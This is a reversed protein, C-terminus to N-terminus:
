RPKCFFNEEKKWERKYLVDTSGKRLYIIERVFTEERGWFTLGNLRCILFTFGCSLFEGWKVAAM